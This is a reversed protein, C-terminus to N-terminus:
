QLLLVSGIWNLKIKGSVFYMSVIYLCAWSAEPPDPEEVAAAAAAEADGVKWSLLFILSEQVDWRDDDDELDGGAAAPAAASEMAVDREFEPLLFRRLFEALQRSPLGM